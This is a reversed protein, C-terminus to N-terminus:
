RAVATDFSVDVMCNNVLLQIHIYFQRLAIDQYLILM